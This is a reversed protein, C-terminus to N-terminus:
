FKILSKKGLFRCIEEAAKHIVKLLMKLADTGIDLLIKKMNRLSIELLHCFDMDKIKKNKTRFIDGM